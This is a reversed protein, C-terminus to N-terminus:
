RGTSGHRPDARFTGPWFEVPEDYKRRMTQGYNSGTEARGPNTFGFSIGGFVRPLFGSRAAARAEIRDLTREREARQEAGTDEPFAATAFLTTATVVLAVIIKRMEDEM